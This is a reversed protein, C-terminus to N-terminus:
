AVTGKKANVTALFSSAKAGTESQPKYDLKIEAFNLSVSEIPLEGGGSGSTHVSTVFVEKMKIELYTVPGGKSGGAKRAIFTGEDIHDGGACFKFLDPSASELYHTFTLDHLDVKSVGSGTGTGGSGAQTAGYSWSLVEIYEPFKEDQAEGKLAGLKLLFDAKAM